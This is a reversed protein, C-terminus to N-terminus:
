SILRAVSSYKSSDTLKHQGSPCVVGADRSHQCFSFGRTASCNKLDAENGTCMVNELLVSGTGERYVGGSVAMSGTFVPILIIEVEKSKIQCNRM